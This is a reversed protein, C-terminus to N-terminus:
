DICQCDSLSANADDCRSAMSFDNCGLMFLWSKAISEELARDRRELSTVLHTYVAHPNRKIRNASAIFLADESLKVILKEGTLLNYWYNNLQHVFM